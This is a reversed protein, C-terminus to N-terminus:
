QAVYATIVERYKRAGRWKGPGPATHCESYSGQAGDAGECAYASHTEDFDRCDGTYIFGCYTYGPNDPDPETCDRPALGGFEGAAQARGRCAYWELPDDEHTFVNGFFAGEELDFMEAEGAGTALMPHDGRLSIEESTGHRNVRALLCASVWREGKSSLAHEAWDPALGLAGDFRCVGSSCSYATTPPATDPAGPLLAQISVDEGLACSVIYSFLERGDPTALLEASAESAELTSSSLANSALRNSALRNSALRNSALRNSALRNSALRNHTIAANTVHTLWGLGGAVALVLATTRARM